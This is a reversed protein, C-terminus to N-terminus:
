KGFYKQILALLEDKNIPKAIYDNCGAQISKKRDGALGYATQAIIIVEQNFERIKRVAEYGNMDPMRIDMLILDIDPNNRCVEVAEVGTRANLIEKSFTKVTEDLLMESVEDDETILIKLKRVTESKGFPEHQQVITEKVPKANYPLTFYFTSGKGEESIVWIKEEHKEIFEKCLILGLGTGKENATGATSESEEIRFLKEVREKPIGIGNDKVSVTCKNEDKTVSLIIEGGQRTFKIANSILNRLVTNIMAQDAFVTAKQPLEKKITIGKQGAIDDFLPTINHIFETLDFQETNPEMRGTQSQAWEMLNMLLNMARHSSQLIIRAYKEIGDYDKENIREVLIEGFGIISNFPSKLDHAIISFFKDKAANTRILEIRHKDIENYATALKDNADKLKNKSRFIFVIGAITFLLIILGTLFAFRWYSIEQKHILSQLMQESKLQEEKKEFEYQAYLFATKIETEQNYISESQKYFEKFTTYAMQTNGLKDYIQSILLYFDRLLTGHSAQKALQLGEKAWELADKHQNKNILVKSIGLIASCQYEIGKSKEAYSLALQYFNEASNFDGLKLYNNALFNYSEAITQNSAQKKFYELAENHKSISEEYNNLEYYVRGIANLTKMYIHTDMIEHSITKAQNQYELSKQYEKQELYILGINHLAVSEGRRYSNQESTKLSMLYYELAKAHNGYQFYVNAIGNTARVKCDPFDIKNSLELAIGYIALATDYQAKIWYGTAKHICGICVGKQYNIKNGYHIAAQAYAIGSDVNSIIKQFAKENLSNVFSTDIVEPKFSNEASALHNSICLLVACILFNKTFITYGNM